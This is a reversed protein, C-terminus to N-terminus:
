KSYAHLNLKGISNGLCMLLHIILFLHHHFFHKLHKSWIAISDPSHPAHPGLPPHITLCTLQQLYIPFYIHGYSTLLSIITKFEIIDDMIQPGLVKGLHRNELILCNLEHQDNTIFSLQAWVVIQYACTWCLSTVEQGLTFHHLNFSEMSAGAPIIQTCFVFGNRGETQKYHEDVLHM